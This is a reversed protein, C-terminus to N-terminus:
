YILIWKCYKSVQKNNNNKSLYICKTFRKRKYTVLLIKANPNLILHKSKLTKVGIHISRERGNKHPESGMFPNDQKKQRNKKTKRPM